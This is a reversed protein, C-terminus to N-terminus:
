HGYYVYIGKLDSSHEDKLGIERGGGFSWRVQASTYLTDVIMPVKRYMVARGDILLNDKGVEILM